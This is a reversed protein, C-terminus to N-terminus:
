IQRNGQSSMIEVNIEDNFYARIIMSTASAYSINLIMSQSAKKVTLLSQIVCVSDIQVFVNKVINHLITKKNNIDVLRLQCDVSYSIDLKKLVEKEVLNVKVKLDLLVSVQKEDINIVARLSVSLYLVNKLQYLQINNVNIKEIDSIKVIIDSKDSKFMLKHAILESMLIDKVTIDSVIVYLM